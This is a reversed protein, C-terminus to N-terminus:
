PQHRELAGRRVRPPLGVDEFARRMPELSSGAFVVHDIAYEMAVSIVPCDFIGLTGRHPSQPTSRGRTRYPPRTPAGISRNM